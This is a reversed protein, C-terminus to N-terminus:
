KGICFSSFIEGLMEEVDIHGIIKSLSVHLYRLEEAIIEPDNTFDITKAYDLANQLHLKHRTHTPLPQHSYGIYAHIDKEIQQLLSEMGQNNKLSIVQYSHTQSCAAPLGLDSKNWVLWHHKNLFSTMSEPIDSISADLMVLNFDAHTAHYNAREIGLSEIPDKTDRMGATDFFVVSFGGINVHAEISDRTTGALDSVIATERQTLYNLLSSKGVNPPGIIAIRIGERIKHAVSAQKLFSEISQCFLHVAHQIDDILTNPLDEDPFDIYAEVRVLLDIFSQRWDDYKKQLQGDIHFLAQKAQMETEAHILDGIGEIEILNLKQNLYARKTFAGPEALSHGDFSGLVTLIQEIVIKSGHVHLEACDEGTYSIPGKFCVVMSQDILHDTKPHYLSRYSLKGFDPIEKKTLRVIATHANKGSIRIVAIGSVGYATSLAFITDSM